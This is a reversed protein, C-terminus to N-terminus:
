GDQGDQRAVVSFGLQVLWDIARGADAYSLYPVASTM